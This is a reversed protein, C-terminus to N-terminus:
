RRKTPDSNAAFSPRVQTTEAVWKAAEVGEELSHEVTAPVGVNLRHLAAGCDMQTAFAPNLRRGSVAFHPAARPSKGQVGEHLGRPQARRGWGTQPNDQVPRTAPLM